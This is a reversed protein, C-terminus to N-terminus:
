SLNKRLSFPLDQHSNQSAVYAFATPTAFRHCFFLLAVCSIKLFEPNMKVENGANTEQFMQLYQLLDQLALVDHSYVFTHHM